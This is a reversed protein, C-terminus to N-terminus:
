VLEFFVVYAAGTLFAAGGLLQLALVVVKDTADLQLLELWALASLAIYFIVLPVVSIFMLILRDTPGRPLERLIRRSAGSDGDTCHLTAVCFVYMATCTLSFMVLLFM